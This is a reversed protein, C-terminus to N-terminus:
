KVSGDRLGLFVDTGEGEGGADREWSEEGSSVWLSEGEEGGQESEVGQASYGAFVGESMRVKCHPVLLAVLRDTPLLKIESELPLLTPFPHPPQDDLFHFRETSFYTM